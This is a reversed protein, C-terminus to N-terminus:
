REQKLEDSVLGIFSFGKAGAGNAMKTLFDVEQIYEMKAGPMALSSHLINAMGPHQARFCDSVWLRRRVLVAARFAMASGELGDSLIYQPNVISKGLLSCMFILHSDAENLQDVVFYDANQSPAAGEEIMEIRSPDFNIAAARRRSSQVLAKWSKAANQNQKLQRAKAQALLELDVDEEPVAQRNVADMLFEREKKQMKQIEQDHGDGWLDDAVVEAEVAVQASSRADYASCVQWM